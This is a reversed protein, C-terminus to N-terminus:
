RPRCAAAGGLAGFSGWLSQLAAPANAAARFMAPVTGFAQQIADLTPQSAVPLATRDLPLRSM